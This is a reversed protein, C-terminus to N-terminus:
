SRASEDLVQELSIARQRVRQLLQTFDARARRGAEDLGIYLRELVFRDRRLGILESVVFADLTDSTTPM